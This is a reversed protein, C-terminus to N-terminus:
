MSATALNHGLSLEALMTKVFCKCVCALCKFEILASLERSRGSHHCVPGIKTLKWKERFQEETYQELHLSAAFMQTMVATFAVQNM